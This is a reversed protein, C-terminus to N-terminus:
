LIHVKDEVTDRTGMDAQAALEAASLEKQAASAEEVQQVLTTLDINLQHIEEQKEEYLRM